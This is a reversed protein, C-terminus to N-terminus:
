PLREIGTVHLPGVRLTAYDEWQSKRLQRKRVGLLIGLAVLSLASAGMIAAGAYVVNDNSSTSGGSGGISVDPVSAGGLLVLSGALIGTSSIWIGIKANRVGPPDSSSEPEEIREAPAPAQHTIQHGPIRKQLHQPIYAIFIRKTSAAEDGTNASAGSPLAALAM